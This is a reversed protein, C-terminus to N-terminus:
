SHTFYSIFQNMPLKIISSWTFLNCHRIIHSSPSSSHISLIHFTATRTQTFANYLLTGHWSCIWAGEYEVVVITRIGIYCIM